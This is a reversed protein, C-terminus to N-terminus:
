QVPSGQKDMYEDFDLDTCAPAYNTTPYKELQAIKKDLRNRLSDLEVKVRIEKLKGLASRSGILAISQIAEQAFKGNDQFVYQSLLAIDDDYRAIGLISVARRKVKLNESQLSALLFSHFTNAGGDIMCHQVGQILQFALSIKVLDRRIIDWPLDPHIVVDEDWLSQFVELNNSTLESGGVLNYMSNEDASSRIEDLLSLGSASSSNANSAVLCFIAVVFIQKAILTYIDAM